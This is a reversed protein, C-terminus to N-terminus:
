KILNLGHLLGAEVAEEYSRNPICEQKIENDYDGNVIICYHYSNQMSFSRHIIVDINHKERLWKTLISQTPRKIYPNGIEFNDMERNKLNFKKDKKLCNLEEGNEHYKSNYWFYNEVNEKFGKEKALLATKYKVLEETM